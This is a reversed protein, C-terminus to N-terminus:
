GVFMTLAFAFFIGTVENVENQENPSATASDDYVTVTLDDSHALSTARTLM